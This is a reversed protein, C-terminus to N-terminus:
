AHSEHSTAPPKAGVANQAVPKHHPSRGAADGPEDDLYRVETGRAFEYALLMGVAM